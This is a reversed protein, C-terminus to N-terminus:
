DFTSAHRFTLDINYSSFVTNQGLVIPSQKPVYVESLMRESIASIPVIDLSYPATMMRKM